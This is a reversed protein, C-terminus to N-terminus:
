GAEVGGIRHLLRERFYCRAELVRGAGVNRQEIRLEDARGAIKTTGVGDGKRGGGAPIGARTAGDSLRLRKVEGRQIKAVQLAERAARLHRCDRVVVGGDDVARM